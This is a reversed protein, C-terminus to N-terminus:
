YVLACLFLKLTVVAMFYIYILYPLSELFLLQVWKFPGPLPLMQFLLKIAPAPSLALIDPM